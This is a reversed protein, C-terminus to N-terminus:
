LSVEIGKSKMYKKLENIEIEKYHFVSAGLVGSARGEIAGQVFDEMSRFLM